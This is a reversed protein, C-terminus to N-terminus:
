IRINGLEVDTITFKEGNWEITYERTDRRVVTRIKRGTLVPQGTSRDVEPIVGGEGVIEGKKVKSAGTLDNNDIDQLQFNLTQISEYAIPQLDKIRKDSFDLKGVDCGFPFSHSKGDATQVNMVYELGQVGIIRELKGSIVPVGDVVPLRMTHASQRDVLIAEDNNSNSNNSKTQLEAIVKNQNEIIENQREITGKLNSEIHDLRDMVPDKPAAGKLDKNENDAM